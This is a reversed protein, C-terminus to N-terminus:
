SVVVICPIIPLRGISAVASWGCKGSGDRQDAPVQLLLSWDVVAVAPVTETQM